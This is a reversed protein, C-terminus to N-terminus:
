IKSLIGKMDQGVRWIATSVVNAPVGFKESLDGISYGDVKNSIFMELNRKATKTANKYAKKLLDIVTSVIERANANESEMDTIYQGIRTATYNDMPEIDEGSMEYQQCYEISVKYLVKGFYKSIARRVIMKLYCEFRNVLLIEDEPIIFSAFSNHRWLDIVIEQLIDEADSLYTKNFIRERIWSLMKGRYLNSFDAFAQPNQHSTIFNKIIQTKNM